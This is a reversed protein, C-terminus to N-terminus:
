LLLRGFHRAFAQTTEASLREGIFIEIGRLLKRLDAPNNCREIADCIPAGAEGLRDFVFHAADDRVELFKEPSTAPRPNDTAECAAYGPAIPEQLPAIYATSEILGQQLLYQLVPGLEGVRVFAGLDNVTKKGDIVILVRRQLAGLGRSRTAIEAKGKESKTFTTGPNMTMLAFKSQHM